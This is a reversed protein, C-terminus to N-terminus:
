EARGFFKVGSEDVTDGDMVQAQAAANPASAVEDASVPMMTARARARPM